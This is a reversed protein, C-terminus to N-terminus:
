RIPERGAHLSNASEDTTAGEPSDIRDFCYKMVCIPWRLGPKIVWFECTAPAQEVESNMEDVKRQPRQIKGLDGTDGTMQQIAGRCGQAIRALDLIVRGRLEEEDTADAQLERTGPM